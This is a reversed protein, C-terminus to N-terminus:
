ELGDDNGGSYAVTYPEWQNDYKYYWMPELIILRQEETDRSMKYGILLYELLEPEFGAIQKLQEFVEQGSPLTTNQIDPLTLNLSFMPRDYRYIADKNWIQTVESIGSKNFVPMSNVFLRFTTKKAVEDLDVYRYNEDWGDHDNMYQLSRELLDSSTTEYNIDRTPNVYSLMLREKDVRLISQLDTYEEESASYEQTVESPDQFLTDKFTNVELPEIYYKYYNVTTEDAPVYLYNTSSANVISYSVLEERVYLMKKQLQQVNVSSVSCRYVRKTDSEIFYVPSYEANDQTAEVLIRDFSAEPLDDDESLHLVKNYISFPVSDSFVFESMGNETIMSQIKEYTVNSSIEQLSEFDWSSIEDIMDGIMKESTSGYHQNGDYYIMQIPKIITSLETSDPISVDKIYTQDDLDDISDFDPSYSWISLTLFISSFVLITLFITKFVEKSM